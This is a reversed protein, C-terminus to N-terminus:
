IVIKFIVDHTTVLSSYVSRIKADTFMFDTVERGPCKYHHSDIAVRLAINSKCRKLIVSSVHSGSEILDFMIVNVKVFTLQLQKMELRIVSTIWTKDVM